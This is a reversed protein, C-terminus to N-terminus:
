RVKKWMPIRMRPLQDCVLETKELCFSIEQTETGTVKRQFMEGGRNELVKMGGHVVTRQFVEPGFTMWVKLSQFIRQNVEPGVRKRMDTALCSVENKPYTRAERFKRSKAVVKRGDRRRLGATEHSKRM